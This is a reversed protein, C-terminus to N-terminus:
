FSSSLAKIGLFNMLWNTRANAMAIILFIRETVGLYLSNTSKKEVASSDLFEQNARIRPEIEEENKQEDGCWICFDWVDVTEKEALKFLAYFCLGFSRFIDESRLFVKKQKEQMM